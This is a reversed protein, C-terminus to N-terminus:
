NVALFKEIADIAEPEDLYPAHGRNRIIAATLDPKRKRMKELTAASFLDSKEGRLVLLPIPLLADFLQWPDQQLGSAGERSAVGINRDLCIDLGGDGSRQYTSHAYDLWKSEPWDPFALEYYKRVQEVADHWNAVPPLMGASAVVRAIGVPDLEPGIDNMVVATIVAPREHAMIMAMWGGLSTGIAAVKLVHLQELLNWIDAVYQAPHYNSRDPDHESRGRGRLDTTIIRRRGSLLSALHDFDGSNRTLGPLCIVPDCNDASRPPFDRYFLRLGDASQYYGDSFESTESM